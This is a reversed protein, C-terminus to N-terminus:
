HARERALEELSCLADFAALLNRCQDDPLNRIHGSIRDIGGERRAVVYDLGKDTLEILTARADAPDDRRTVMGAKQLSTVLSTMSPQTIGQAAALATIRLPGRRRLTALTSSATLSLDRPLQRLFDSMLSYLVDATAEVTGVGDATQRNRTDAPVDSRVPMDTM